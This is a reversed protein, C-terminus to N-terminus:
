AREGDSSVSILHLLAEQLSPDTLVQQVFGDSDDSYQDLRRYLIRTSWDTKAENETAFVEKSLSNRFGTVQSIGEIGIGEIKKKKKKPQWGTSLASASIDISGEDNTFYATLNVSDFWVDRGHFQHYPQTTSPQNIWMAQM